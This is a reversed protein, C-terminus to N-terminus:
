TESSYEQAALTYKKGGSILYGQKGDLESIGTWLRQDKGKATIKPHCTGGMVYLVTQKALMQLKMNKGHRYIEVVTTGRFIGLYALAALLCTTTSAIVWAAIDQLAKNSGMVWILTALIELVLIGIGAWFLKRLEALRSTYEQTPNDELRFGAITDSLGRPDKVGHFFSSSWGSATKQFVSLTRRSTLLLGIKDLPVEELIEGNLDCRYLRKNSVVLKGPHDHKIFKLFFMGLVLPMACFAGIVKPELGASIGYACMGGIIGILVTIAIYGITSGAHRPQSHLIKEEEMITPIPM